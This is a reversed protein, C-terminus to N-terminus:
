GGYPQGSLMMWRLASREADNVTPDRSCAAM